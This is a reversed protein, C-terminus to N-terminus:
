RLLAARLAELTVGEVRVVKDRSTQGRVVDVHSSPVRAAKAIFACLAANAKGDVPPATVRIVIAGAASASSRRASPARSCDFRSTRWPFARPPVRVWVSWLVIPNLGVADSWNRWGPRAFDYYAGGGRRPPPRTVRSARSGQTPCRRLKGVRRHNKRTPLTRRRCDNPLKREVASQGGRGSAEAAGATPHADRRGSGARCGRRTRLAPPGSGTAAAPTRGACARM